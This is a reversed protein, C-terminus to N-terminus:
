RRLGLDRDRRAYEPFDFLPRPNHASNAPPAHPPLVVHIRPTLLPAIQPDIRPRHACASLAQAAIICLGIALADSFHRRSRASRPNRPSRLIETQPSMVKTNHATTAVLGTFFRRFIPALPAPPAVPMVSMAPASTDQLAPLSRSAPAAHVRDQGDFCGPLTQM